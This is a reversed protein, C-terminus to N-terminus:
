FIYDMVSSFPCHSFIFYQCNKAEITDSRVIGFTDNYFVSFRAIEGVPLSYRDDKTEPFHTPLSGIEPVAGSWGPMRSYSPAWDPPQGLGAREKVLPLLSGTSNHDGGRSNWLLTRFNSQRAMRDILDVAWAPIDGASKDDSM